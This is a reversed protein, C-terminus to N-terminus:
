NLLVTNYIGLCAAKQICCHEKMSRQKGIPLFGCAMISMSWFTKNRLNFQTFVLVCWHRNCSKYNHNCKANNIKLICTITAISVYLVKFFGWAQNCNLAHVYYFDPMTGDHIYLVPFRVKFPGQISQCLFEIIASTYTSYLSAYNFLLHTHIAICIISYSIRISYDASDSFDPEGTLTWLYRRWVPFIFERHNFCSNKHM